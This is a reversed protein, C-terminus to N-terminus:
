DQKSASSANYAMIMGLSVLSLVIVASTSQALRGQEFDSYISIPLTVRNPQWGYVM